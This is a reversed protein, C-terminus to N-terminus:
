RASRWIALDVLNNKAIRESSDWHNDERESKDLSVKLMIEAMDLTHIYSIPEKYTGCVPDFIYLNKFVRELCVFHESDKQVIYFCGQEFTRSPNRIGRAPISFDALLRKIAGLSIADNCYKVNEPLISEGTLREIAYTTVSFGCDIVHLQVHSISRLAQRVEKISALSLMKLYTCM